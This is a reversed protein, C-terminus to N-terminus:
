LFTAAAKMGEIDGTRLFHQMLRRMTESSLFPCLPTLDKISCGKDLKRNVIEYLTEDELFPALGVLAHLDINEMKQAMKSLTQESLFPALQTLKHEDVEEMCREALGDLTDDSLFPALALIGEWDSTDAKSVLADLQDDDLFPAACSVEKLSDFNVQSLIEDMIEDDLFPLLPILDKLSTKAESSQAAKKTEAHVQAPSLIPAVEALEEVSLPEETDMLVKEMAESARSQGGLLLHIDLDLIQSLTELKAIDPMSNGREWNSVAQYSVGMQDALDMQTMNKGIRATRIAKGIRNMDFM